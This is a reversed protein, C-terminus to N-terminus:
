DVLDKMFVLIKRFATRMGWEYDNYDQNDSLELNALQDILYNWIKGLKENDIM